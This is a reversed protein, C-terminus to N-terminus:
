TYDPQTGQKRHPQCVQSHTHQPSGRGGGGGMTLPGGGGGEGACQADCTPQMSPRPSKYRPGRPRLLPHRPGVLPPRPEEMGASSTAAFERAKARRMPAHQPPGPKTHDSAGNRQGGVSGGQNRVWCRGGGGPSMLVGGPHKPPLRLAGCASKPGMKLGHAIVPGLAMRPASRACPGLCRYIRRFKVRAHLRVYPGKDVVVLEEEGQLGGAASDAHISYLLIYISTRPRSDLSAAQGSAVSGWREGVRGAHQEYDWAGQGTGHVTFDMWGDVGGAHHLHVRVRKHVGPVQAGLDPLQVGRVLVPPLVAGGCLPNEPNLTKPNQM